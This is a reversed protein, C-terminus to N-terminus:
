ELPRFFLIRDIVMIEEGRQGKRRGEGEIMGQKGRGTEQLTNKGRNDRGEGEWV